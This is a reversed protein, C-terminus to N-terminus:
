VTEAASKLGSLETGSLVNMFNASSVEITMGAALMLVLDASISVTAAPAASFLRLILLDLDL